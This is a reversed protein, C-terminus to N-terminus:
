ICCQNVPKNWNLKTLRCHYFLHLFSKWKKQNKQQQQSAPEISCLQVSVGSSLRVLTGKCFLNYFFKKWERVPVIVSHWFCVSNSIIRDGTLLNVLARARPRNTASCTIESAWVILHIHLSFFYCRIALCITFLFELAHLAMGHGM